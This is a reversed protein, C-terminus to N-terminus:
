LITQGEPVTEKSFSFVSIIMFSVRHLMQNGLFFYIDSNSSILKANKWVQDINDPNKRMWEYFGWDIVQQDHYGKAKCDSCRYQIRPVLPFNIKTKIPLIGALLSKQVYPNYGERNGFYCKHIEPKVIGLSRKSDNIDHVCGDVHNLVLNRKEDQSIERIPEIRRNLDQWETRSGVLKWSENRTDKSNKEVDVSVQEWRRLPSNVRTPYVRIFGHTKSFGATCVTERGDSLKDPSAQGMIVLDEIKM